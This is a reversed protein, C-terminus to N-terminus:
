KPSCSARYSPQALPRSPSTHALEYLASVAQLALLLSAELSLAVTPRQLREALRWQLGRSATRWREQLAPTASHLQAPLEQSPDAVRAFPNRPLTAKSLAMTVPEGFRDHATNDVPPTTQPLTSSYFCEVLLAATDSIDDPSLLGMAFEPGADCVDNPCLPSVESLEILCLPPPARRAVALYIAASASAAVVM